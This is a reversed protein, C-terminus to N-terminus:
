NNYFTYAGPWWMSKVMVTGFNVSSKGTKPDIFSENTGYSRLVWAPMNGMTKNDLTIPKLREEWPDKKVERALLTEEEVDEEGPLPQGPTHTLKGQLLISPTYHVWKSLDAM